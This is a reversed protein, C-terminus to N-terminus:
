NPKTPDRDSSPVTYLLSSVLSNSFCRTVIGRLRKLTGPIKNIPGNAERAVPMSIVNSADPLSRALAIAVPTVDLCDKIQLVVVVVLDISEDLEDRRYEFRISFV